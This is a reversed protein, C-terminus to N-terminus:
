NTRILVLFVRKRLHPERRRVVLNRLDTWSVLVSSREEVEEEGKVAKVARRKTPHCLYV